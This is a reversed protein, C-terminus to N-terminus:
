RQLSVLSRVVLTGLRITKLEPLWPAREEVARELWDLAESNAGSVAYALAIM